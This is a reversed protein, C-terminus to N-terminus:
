KPPEESPEGDPAVHWQNRPADIDLSTELLQEFASGDQRTLNPVYRSYVRFLMETTAHGMQHAIWEPNEGAALWLTAATHRTQYPKRRPLGLHRLLPHWVRKSVNRYNLPNGEANCFVFDSHATVERQQQLAIFVPESMTIARQSHDNKTYDMEGMVFSERVLIHRREFDVYRWKLGDIEGTRMGTFFRVTYYARFDPRVNALIKQVEDLTFPDVNSRPVKLTKIGQIQSPFDFRESAEKLIMKLPGIIRNIRSTSLGITGNARQKRGLTARFRLVDAKLIKDVPSDGFEPILHIDLDRRVTARHSHRWGVECEQFWVEVFDSFLPCQSQAAQVRKETSEFFAVKPSNPFYAAYDFTGLTIEADIRELLKRARAKNSPTAKFRTYERCRLGRFRFDFYLKGGRENLKGM